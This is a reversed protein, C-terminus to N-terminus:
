SAPVRSGRVLERRLFDIINAANRDAVAKSVDDLLPNHGGPYRLATVPQLAASQLDQFTANTVITDRDGHMLLLPRPAIRGVWNVPDYPRLLSFRAAQFRDSRREIGPLIRATATLLAQWTGPVSLLVVAKIRPDDGAVVAGIIGGLSDGVLGINHRCGPRADLLDIARRLDIASGRVVDRIQRPSDVAAALTLATVARQGRDRLDISFTTLGLRGLVEWAPAADEKRSSPGSWILCGTRRHATPEALFAPVTQGDAAAYSLRTVHLGRVTRREIVKIKL